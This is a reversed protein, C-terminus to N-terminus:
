SLTPSVGAMVGPESSLYSNLGRVIYSRVGASQQAVVVTGGQGCPCGLKRREFGTGVFV